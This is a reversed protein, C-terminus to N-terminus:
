PDCSIVQSGADWGYPDEVSSAGVGWYRDDSYWRAYVAWLVNEDDRIYFINARSNTLLVGDQGKSQQTVLWVFHDMTTEACDGLEALIPQDLSDKELRHVALTATKAGPCKKGLFREKFNDWGYINAEKLVNDTLVFEKAEPVTVTTLKTLLKVAEIVVKASGQLIRMVAEMGGLTNVLAEVQGLELKGYKM